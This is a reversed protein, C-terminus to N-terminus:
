PTSSSRVRPRAYGARHREACGRQPRPATAASGRRASVLRGAVALDTALWGLYDGNSRYDCPHASTAAVWESEDGGVVGGRVGGLVTPCNTGIALADGRVGDGGRWGFRRCDRSAM